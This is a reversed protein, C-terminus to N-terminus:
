NAFTPEVVAKIADDITLISKRAMENGSLGSMKSWVAKVFEFDTDEFSCSVLKNGETEVYDNLEKQVDDYAPEAPSIKKQKDNLEKLKANFPQVVKDISSVAKDLLRIQEVTYGSQFNQLQLSLLRLEKTPLAIARM